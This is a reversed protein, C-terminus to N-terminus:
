KRRGGETVFVDDEPLVQRRWMECQRLALLLLARRQQKNVAAFANESRYETLRYAGKSGYGRIEIKKTAM